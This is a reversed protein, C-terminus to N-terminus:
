FFVRAGNVAVKCLITVNDEKDRDKKASVSYYGAQPQFTLEIDFVGAKNSKDFGIKQPPGTMTASYLLTVARDDRCVKKTQIDGTFSRLKDYDFEVIRGKIQIQKTPTDLSAAPGASALVAVIVSAAILLARSLAM